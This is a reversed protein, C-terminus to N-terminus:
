KIVSRATRQDVSLASLSRMLSTRLARSRDGGHLRILAKLVAGGVPPLDFGGIEAGPREARVGATVLEAYYPSNALLGGGLMLLGEQELRLEDILWRAYGVLDTAARDVITKATADGSQALHIVDPAFAAAASPALAFRETLGVLERIDNLSFHKRARDILATRAARGDSAKLVAACAAVGIAYGSGEDGLVHGWGGVRRPQGDSDQGYGISGTGAMVVGAPRTATAGELAVSADNEVILAPSHLVAALASRAREQGDTADVGALGIAIVEMAEATLGASARCQEVADAISAAFRDGSNMASPGGTSRAVLTGDSASIACDTKTGGADVGCVYQTPRDGNAGALRAGPSV